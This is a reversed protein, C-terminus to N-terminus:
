VCWCGCWRIVTDNLVSHLELNVDHPFNEKEPFFDPVLWLNNTSLWVIAILSLGSGIFVCYLFYSM